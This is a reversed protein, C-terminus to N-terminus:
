KGSESIKQFKSWSFGSPCEERSERDTRISLWFHKIIEVLDKVDVDPFVHGSARQEGSPGHDRKEAPIASNKGQSEGYSWSAAFDVGLQGRIVEL